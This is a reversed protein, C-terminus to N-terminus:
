GSSRVAHFTERECLAPGSCILIFKNGAPVSSLAQRLRATHWKGNVDCASELGDGSAAMGRALRNVDTSSPDSVDMSALALEPHELRTMRALGWVGGHAAGSSALPAGEAIIRTACSGRTVLMVRAPRSGLSLQQALAIILTLQQLVPVASAAHCAQVVM